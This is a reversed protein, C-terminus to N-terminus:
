GHSPGQPPLSADVRALLERFSPKVWESTNWSRLEQLLATRQDLLQVASAKEKLAAGYLKLAEQTQERARALESSLAFVHALLACADKSSVHIYPEHGINPYDLRQALKYRIAEFQEDTLKGVAEPSTDPATM